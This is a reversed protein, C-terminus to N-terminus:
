RNDGGVSFSRLVRTAPQLNLGMECKTGQVECKAGRVECGTGGVELVEMDGGRERELDGITLQWNDTLFKDM